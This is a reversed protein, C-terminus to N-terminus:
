GTAPPRRGRVGTREAAALTPLALGLGVLVCIVRFPLAAARDPLNGM